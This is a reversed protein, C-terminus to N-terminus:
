ALLKHLTMWHNSGNVKLRLVYFFGDNVLLFLLLALIDEMGANFTVTIINESESDDKIWNKAHTKTIRDHLSHLIEKQQRFRHVCFHRKRITGISFTGFIYLVKLKACMESKSSCIFQVKWIFKGGAISTIWAWRDVTPQRISNVHFVVIWKMLNEKAQFPVMNWHRGVKSSCVKVSDYIMYRTNLTWCFTKKVENKTLLMSLLWAISIAFHICHVFIRNYTLNWQDVVYWVHILWIDLNIM